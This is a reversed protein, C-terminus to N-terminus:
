LRTTPITVALLVSLNYEADEPTVHYTENDELGNPIFRDELRNYTNQGNGRHVNHWDGWHYDVYTNKRITLPLASLDFAMDVQADNGAKFMDKSYFKLKGGGYTQGKPNPNRKLDESHMLMHLAWMPTFRIHEEQEAKTPLRGILNVRKATGDDFEIGIRFLEDTKASIRRVGVSLLTPDYPKEPEYHVSFDYTYLENHALPKVDPTYEWHARGIKTRSFLGGKRVIEKEYNEDRLASAALGYYPQVIAMFERQVTAERDVSEVEKAPDVNKVPKTFNDALAIIGMKNSIDLPHNEFTNTEVELPQGNTHDFSTLEAETM